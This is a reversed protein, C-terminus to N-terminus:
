KRQQSNEQHDKGSNLTELRGIISLLAQSHERTGEYGEAQCQRVGFPVKRVLNLAGSASVM